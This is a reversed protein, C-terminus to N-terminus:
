FRVKEPFGLYGFQQALQNFQVLDTHYIGLEQLFTLAPETYGGKSIYWHTLHAYAKVGQVAEIQKLFAEIDPKTAKDQRYKIQVFWAATARESTEEDVIPYEGILDLEELKDDELVGWRNVTHSFKPAVVLGPSSFYTPGDLTEGNFGKMVDSVVIEAFRGILNSERGRDANAQKKLNEAAQVPSLARIEYDYQYAIYRKLMPETPGHYVSWTVRRVIDLQELKWLSNQVEQAEVGIKKAIEDVDIRTDPYKTAWFMVQKTTQGENLLTSYKTFEANYHEFLVGNFNTLEYTVVEDLVDPNPYESTAGCESTMLSAIAYPYGQTLEWIAFAFEETVEIGHLEGFRQVLDFSHSQNLPGLTRYRLRGSLAGGTARGMLLSVASGSVVMPAVLSESPKQYYNTIPIIRDHDPDYVDALLQFEDIFVATPMNHVGAQGMPINVAMSALEASPYRSFKGNLVTVYRDFLKLALQDEVERSFQHLEDFKLAERHFDPRRYRFALYSRLYGSFYAEAFEYTTMLGPRYLYPEFTIFVPLVRDQEHFLRNFVRHLIATKGTRRLGAFAISNGGPLPISNAWKWFYDLEAQRNVFWADGIEELPNLKNDSTFNTM